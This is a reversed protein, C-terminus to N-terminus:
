NDAIARELWQKYASVRMYGNYTPPTAGYSVVGVQTLQGNRRVMLPGGSDGYGAFPM